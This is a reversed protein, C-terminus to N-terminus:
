SNTRYHALEQAAKESGLEAARELWRAAQEHDVPVGKGQQYAVAVMRASESHGQGALAKFAEVAEAHEGEMYQTFFALKFQAELDGQQAATRLSEINPDEDADYAGAEHIYADEADLTGQPSERECGVVLVAILLLPQYRM